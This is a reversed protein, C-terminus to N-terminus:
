ARGPQWEPYSAVDPGDHLWPVAQSTWIHREPVQGPDTDLTAVRLTLTERGAIQTYVQSGCTSCFYRRKGPSSEYFRLNDQGSLWRFHEHRVPAGTSFVAAHAKRCTGCSCHQIPGALGIAEYRVTGCLCSGNM